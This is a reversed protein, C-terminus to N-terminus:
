WAEKNFRGVTGGWARKRERARECRRFVGPSFCGGKASGVVTWPSPAIGLRGGNTTIEKGPRPEPAAGCLFFDSLSFVGCHCLILVLFKLTPSKFGVDLFVNVISPRRHPGHGAGDDKVRGGGCARGFVPEWVVYCAYFAAREAAGGLREKALAFTSLVKVRGGGMGHGGKGDDAGVNALQYRRDGACM